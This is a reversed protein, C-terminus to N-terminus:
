KRGYCIGPTNTISSDLTYNSPADDLDYTIVGEESDIIDYFVAEDTDVMNLRDEILKSYGIIDHWNDIYFPDGNLIRAIKDAITTLAQKMDADLTSWNNSRHMVDQLGQSVVAHQSFVGYRNGREKLTNEISM